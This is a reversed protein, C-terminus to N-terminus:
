LKLNLSGFRQNQVEELIAKPPDAWGFRSYIELAVDLALKRRRTQLEGPAFSRSVNIAEFQCWGNAPVASTQRFVDQPWTLAHGDIGYLDFSIVPRPSLFGQEAMRASLELAGTVTDLIEFVHVRGALEPIHDFARNHVFQASRFLVWRETRQLKDIEAAIWQDGTEISDPSFWPYAFWGQITVCSALMFGRCQELNQFRARRFESPRIWICWRPKAWIKTMTPTEALRRRQELYEPPDPLAASAPAEFSPEVSALWQPPMGRPPIASVGHLCKLLRKYEDPSDNSLDVGYVGSLATPLASKWTGSRLVPIFKNKGVENVIEGSIIHGEYGAGGQRNDFRRKYTDTCIVLVYRSDRVSQEMFHPSRAGLDLHTQDVIAEVGDARLRCAFTQVWRKHDDDDWSYSIFTVVAKAADQTSVM